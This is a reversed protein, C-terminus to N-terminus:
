HERSKAIDFVYDCINNINRIDMAKKKEEHTLSSGIIEEIYELLEIADISDFGYKENLNVDLEPNEIEFDKKMIELIRNLIEERTM